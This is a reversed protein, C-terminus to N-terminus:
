PKEKRSAEDAVLRDNDSALDKKKALSDWMVTLSAM